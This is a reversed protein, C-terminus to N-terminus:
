CRRKVSCRAGYATSCASDQPETLSNLRKCRGFSSLLTGSLASRRLRMTRETPMRGSSRDSRAATSCDAPYETSVKGGCSAATLTRFLLNRRARAKSNPIWHRGFAVLKPFATSMPANNRDGIGRNQFSWFFHIVKTISNLTGFHEQVKDLSVFCLDCEALKASQM